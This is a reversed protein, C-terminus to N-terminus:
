EEPEPQQARWEWPTQFSGSWMGEAALRAAKEEALYLHERGDALAYGSHVMAASIDDGSSTVCTAFIRGFIDLDLQRCSVPKDGITEALRRKADLGCDWQTGDLRRCKQGLEPADIGVLRIIDKGILMTDGDSAIAHGKIEPMEAQAGPCFMAVALLALAILAGRARRMLTACSM